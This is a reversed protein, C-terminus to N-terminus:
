IGLRLMKKFREEFQFLIVLQVLLAILVFASSTIFNDFAIPLATRSVFRFVGEVAVWGVGCMLGLGLLGYLSHNSFIRGSAYVLILVLIISVITRASWPSIAFLDGWIGWCLIFWIGIKSDKQHYFWIAIPVLLPLLNWPPILASIVSSELTALFVFIGLYLLFRSM